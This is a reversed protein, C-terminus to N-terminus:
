GLVAVLEGVIMLEEAQHEKLVIPEYEPLFSDPRLVITKHRWTGDALNEKTSEYIKVTYHGSSETDAIERHSALVIKGNRSGASAIRFLCWAGNPIRRNMSEGVVQVVFLGKQPRFVDPLEVWECGDMQQEDSFCGAAVKLDYLPVCNEYPRAEEPRLRRFPLVPVAEELIKAVPKETVPMAVPTVQIREAFYRRTEEDVFYVYCGKQGRTMLTRYTNKIITDLRAAGGDPDNKVLKKWGHISRDMRSREAPRTLVRGDRVVLDPGVIVGIYDVELGQCTHICGVESVSDPKIIWAQGDTELNWTARYDGIVIDKLLPNKKSVWDWCYGAVMRAKNRKNKIRILEHLEAATDVLRFDYEGTDMTENATERIQLTNDLWALYGNSGNCRFQSELAAEIVEAGLNQAWTRFTEKDGIDKLTVKQDEDIFFVSLKSTNIIEKVQNEGLHSFMGSKENLRHAEDVVLCDFSNAQLAHFRGSSSFMNSIHSKKFSGTLKAEYVMRPASNRTVYQVVLEKETLAVLLNIALVSKGTGPGGEVILVKKAHESAQRALRKAKEFVVKQDDILVFERNGKLMSALEDALNKSPKIKGHEIRYMIRTTDGYKVHTKIFQQLKLADPKLFLPAREIHDRYFQHTIVGDDTYNHLYACPYLEIHEEQVTQNFDQLLRKYSWAQYSPHLTEACGHKFRTIVVADSQTLEAKQWQKLEVLVAAERRYMDQGTLIFDIRKSTQPLHYEIAVGADQPIEDDNLVRDMYQLSNVWSRIESESTQKGTATQFADFIIGGIDNTM